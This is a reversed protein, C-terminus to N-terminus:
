FYDIVSDVIYVISDGAPNKFKYEQGVQYIFWNREEDSFSLRPLSDEEKKCASAVLLIVVIFKLYKM